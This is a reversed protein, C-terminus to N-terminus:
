EEENGEDEKDDEDGLKAIETRISQMIASAEKKLVARIDAKEDSSFEHGTMAEAKAILIAGYRQPIANLSSNMIKAISAISRILEEREVFKGRKEDIDMQYKEATLRGKLRDYDIEPLKTVPNLLPNRDEGVIWCDPYDYPNLKQMPIEDSPITPTKIDEIDPASSITPAVLQPAKKPKKISAKKRVKEFQLHQIEWDMYQTKYGNLRTAQLKGEQIMKRIRQVSFGVRQAFESIKVYEKGRYVLADVGQKM